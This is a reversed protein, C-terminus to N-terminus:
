GHNGSITTPDGPYPGPGSDGSAILGHESNDIAEVGGTDSELDLVGGITNPQCSADGPDGVIVLGTQDRIDVSGNITSGCVRIEGSGGTSVIAGYASAGEVDVAGAGQVLISGTVTAGASVCTSSTVVLSGPHTGTITVACTVSYPLTPSASPLFSGNGSYAAVISHSGASLSSTTISAQASGSLPQTGVPTGDVSFAVTGTPTGAGPPVPAVTATFTVAQGFTQSGAPSASLTTTTADKNVTYSLAGSTSGLFNGDGTYTAVISHPSGAVSLSATTCSAQYPSTASLAVGGCGAIPVGDATFAVTGTPAGAGPPVPAVTATFTVPQGFVSPSPPSVTLTTTTAAKNVTYSASTSTSGQYDADGGYVASITHGGVALTSTVCSVTHSAGAPTQPACSPIATAGDFFVVTGGNDDPTVSATLTVPQGFVSPSPPSIGLTTVTPAKTVTFSKSTDSAALYTADGAFSATIPYPSGAPSDLPTVSCSAAGSPGTTASCSEAGFAFSLTAGPIGDSDTTDVLTGSLTVPVGYTGTTPGTYTVATPIHIVTFPETESTAKYAADGAFVAIVSYHGPADGITVNCSAEGTPGTTATCSEAGAAFSILRGALRTTAGADSLTASLTVSQGHSASTPGTYDITAPNNSLKEFDPSGWGTAEDWGTKAAFGNTGTTVDHFDHGYTTPDNALAYILPPDFGVGPRGSAANDKNWITTLAAWIPTALSTGGTCCGASGDVWLYTGIGSDASVDPTARGSCATSPWTLTTGIGTQWSPRSEGNSCGGGNALASESGYSSGAGVNLTTGGVAVVYKSVSPYLCGASAGADGTAFYFTKGASAAMQLINEMNTEVGCGGLEWSDSFVKLGSGAAANLTDELTPNSNDHGLWYTLHSKPAVGHSIETDLAVEGDTDSETTSGDVPVFDLGDDGSQGITLPTTGTAAAYNTYDVQPLAEGWLTFGITQGSDDGTADYAARFDGGDYGCKAGPNPTCTIEPRAADYTSLGSIDSIGLVTPVEPPRDNAYFTQGDARYDELALGFVREAAAATTTVHILLNDSTAGTVDLGEGTLWREAAAVAAATPAYDAMYEASTLYDGYLASGPTGAAAIRADLAASDRVDLGVNLALPTSSPLSGLAVATGALVPAPTDLAVASRPSASTALAPTPVTLGLVSLAASALVLLPRWPWGPRGRGQSRRQWLGFGGRM